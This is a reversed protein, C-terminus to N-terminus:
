LSSNTKELGDLMHQLKCIERNMQDVLNQAHKAKTMWEDHKKADKDAMKTCKLITASSQEKRKQRQSLQTQLRAIVQSSM